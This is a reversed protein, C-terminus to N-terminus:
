NVIGFFSKIMTALIEASVVVGFDKMKSIWGKTESGLENNGPKERLLIQELNEIEKDEINLVKLAKKLSGFDNKIINNSNTISNNNGININNGIIISKESNTNINNGIIMPKDLIINGKNNPAKIVINDEGEVNANGIVINRKGINKM